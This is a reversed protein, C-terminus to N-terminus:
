QMKVFIESTKGIVGEFIYNIKLSIGLDDVTKIYDKSLITDAEHFNKEFRLAEEDQMMAIEEASYVVITTEQMTYHCRIRCFPLTHDWLRLPYPEETYIYTGNPEEFGVTLPFRKGFCELYEATYTKGKVTTEVCFPQYLTFTEQYIGRIEGDAHKLRTIGRVDETVGSILIDGEKVADGVCVTATGNYVNMDTIQAGVTAIYNTPIRDNYLSPAKTEEELEVVLRGGTHRLSIWEIDSIKLRLLQEALSFDINTYEAGRYIGIEEMVSLLHTDSIRENGYIEISRVTRNSWWFFAMAPLLGLLLGYRLRMPRLWVRWGKEETIQVIIDHEAAIVFFQKRHAPHIMGHYVGNSVVQQMCPIGKKRLADRFSIINAGTAEFRIYSWRKM